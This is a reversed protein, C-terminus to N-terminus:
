CTLERVQRGIEVVKVVKLGEWLKQCVTKGERVGQESM